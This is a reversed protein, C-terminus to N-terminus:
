TELFRRIFLILQSIQDDSLSFRHAPIATGKSGNKIVWFLQGDPLDEMVKECTFNRPPPEMRRALSGNGNGQSGHCLKCATPKADKLFLKRGKDINEKNPNLPNTKKLYRGPAKKTKRNQPCIGSVLKINKESGGSSYDAEIFVPQEEAFLISYFFISLTLVFIIVPKPM